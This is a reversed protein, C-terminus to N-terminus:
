KVSQHSYFTKWTVNKRTLKTYFWLFGMLIVRVFSPFGWICTLPLASGPSFSFSPFLKTVCVLVLLLKGVHNRQLRVKLAGGKGSHFRDSSKSCSTQNIDLLVLVAPLAAFRKLNPEKVATSETEAGDADTETRQCFQDLERNERKRVKNVWRRFVGQSDAPRLSSPPMTSFSPAASPPEDM